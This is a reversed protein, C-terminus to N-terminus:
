RPRLLLSRIVSGPEPRKGRKYDVPTVGGEGDDELLDLKGILGLRNSSLEVSRAHFTEIAENPAPPKGSQRDVGGDAPGINGGQAVVQFAGGAAVRVGPGGGQLEGFLRAGRGAFPGLREARVQAALEVAGGLGDDLGMQLGAVDGGGDGGGLTCGGDVGVVFREGGAHM